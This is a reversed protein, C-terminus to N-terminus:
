EHLEVEEARLTFTFVTGTPQNDTFWIDGGHANIITKCLALGLGLSRHSDAVKRAGSYFMEFIHPQDEEAIGPGNDAISVSIWKGEKKTSIEIVSDKPTYKIANDVINIIVQVILRAAMKALYLESSNNVVIRHEVSKRNVHRLSEVIM